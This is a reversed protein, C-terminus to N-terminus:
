YNLVSYSFRYKSIFYNHSIANKDTIIYQSFSIQSYNIIEIIRTSSYSMQRIEIYIYYNIKFPKYIKEGIWKEVALVM